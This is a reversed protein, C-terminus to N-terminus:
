ETFFTVPNIPIEVKFEEGCDKCQATWVMNPGWEDLVQMKEALRNLYLAPLKNVWEAIFAKETVNNVSYVMGGVADKLNRQMDEVTLTDKGINRKIMDISDQYMYPRLKVVQGNPLTVTFKEDLTTPDILKMSGIMQEVDAIYSHEKANECNHKAVFEYGPGYTVVRLFLMLADVDKALLQGPQNIGEMCRPYVTKVAEGSFLQDANKLIIEDMASLPRVHIEADNAGEDLEGNHYFLGRSPLQFIRGPLKLDGLLPNQIDSSM